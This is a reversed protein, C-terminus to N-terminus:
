LWVLEVAPRFGKTPIFIGMDKMGSSHSLFINTQICIAPNQKFVFELNNGNQIVDADREMANTM